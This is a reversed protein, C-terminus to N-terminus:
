KSELYDGKNLIFKDIAARVSSTGNDNSTEHLRWGRRTFSERLIVKGTYNARNTLTQLFDIRDKDNPM